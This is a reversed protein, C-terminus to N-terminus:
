GNRNTRVEVRDKNEIAKQCASNLSLLKCDGYAEKIDVSDLPALKHGCSSPDPGSARRVRECSGIVHLALFWSSYKGQFLQDAM